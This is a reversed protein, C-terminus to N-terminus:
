PNELVDAAQEAIALADQHGANPNIIIAATIM